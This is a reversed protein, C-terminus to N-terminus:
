RSPVVNMRFPSGRIPSGNLTISLDNPGAVSPVVQMTYTGNNHDEVRGYEYENTIVSMVTV